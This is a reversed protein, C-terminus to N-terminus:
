QNPQFFYEAKCASARVALHKAHKASHTEVGKRSTNSIM